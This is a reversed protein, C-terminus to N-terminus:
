VVKEAVKVEKTRVVDSVSYTSMNSAYITKNNSNSMNGLKTGVTFLGVVM